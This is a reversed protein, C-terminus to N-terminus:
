LHPVAALLQKTYADQPSAYVADTPGEEVLRGRYLVAVRSCMFRIVSMDHSIFVLTLGLEAILRNLLNLV